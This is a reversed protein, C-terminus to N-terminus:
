WPFRADNVVVVKGLHEVFWERALSAVVELAGPEEFLHSAEPVVELLREGRLLALAHRNLRLVEPDNEGVILLTPADIRSLVSEALDPRGGRSVVAKVREPRWAAAFLAAAAGTSAGFLGIPLNRIAPERAAWDIADTVRQALLQIDFRREGTQQDLAAEELTLLDVLLTAEGGRNLESAVWRNRRSSRSSGSGHAFIVIGRASGPITLDADIVVKGSPIRVPHTTVTSDPSEHRLTDM